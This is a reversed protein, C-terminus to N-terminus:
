SWHTLIFLEPFYLAQCIPLNEQGRLVAAYAELQPEHITRQEALWAERDVLGPDGGTKYDIMWRHTKGISGPEAGALFTRNVRVTRLLGDPDSTQWTSESLAGPHPALLWAGVPDSAVRLAQAALDNATAAVAHPPFGASRLAREAARQLAPHFHEPDSSEALLRSLLDLLAHLATGRARATATGEPRSFLPRRSAPQGGHFSFSASSPKWAAPLREITQEPVAEAAAAIRLGSFERPPRPFMVVGQGASTEAQLRERLEGEFAPWAAALLSGEAPRELEGKKVGVAAFLHLRTRARTCAVYFLRKREAAERIRRQGQVWAYTRDAEDDRSGMPALLLEDQLPDDKEAVPRSRQLMAVLQTSSGRPKRHLGPLLVVQFGLGKAKHITMLEIGFRDNAGAAPAACLRALRLAFDGRFVEVGSPSLGDLLRFFSDANDRATPHLCAPGGLATWAREVWASLSGNNSETYRTRLSEALASWVRSVRARGDTSLLHARQPILEPVPKRLLEPDDASTLMHLDGLLLGCWPARLVTLWAQRDAPHLLARLMMLLDHVEPRDALPELDIGRYPIGAARLAPLIALLHPRATVLVAVRYEEEGRAQAAAIRPLEAQLVRVVAAAEAQAPDTEADTGNQSDDDQEESNQAGRFPAPLNDESFVFQPHFQLSREQELARAAQAPVFQDAKGGAFMAEFRTNLAEVLGAHSRFNHTLQLPHCPHRSGSGCPLGHERTEHFLAVEAERFGYISQLPDGVVFATRCDGPQWERLLEAILRYQSRSTDQFEDILLHRKQESELLGRLTSPDEVVFQAAQAIEVFDVQGAEAFVLRLEGAARRLVLLIARLTAWQDDSYRPSPLARLQCLLSHVRADNSLEGCCNKIREKFLKRLDKGPGSGAAPFGQKENWQKRWGNEKTLLLHALALWHEVTGVRDCLLRLDPENENVAQGSLNEAAYRALEWLESHEGVANQLGLLVSDVEEQFPEELTARVEDWDVDEGGHLPLVSLWSDRRALMAALLRELEHLNNDRRLLLGALADQLAPDADDDLLATTRRAAANYFAQADETPQLDGGLRALLPQSHALRLCLSDITEIALRHPQELIRWGLLEAHEWARRALTAVGADQDRAKELAEVIRTRMEATAARTFTIALIQEPEEVEALLALFRETLLNTKGAGAPAQVLISRSTDVAARRAPMDEPEITISPHEPM